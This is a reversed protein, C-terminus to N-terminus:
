DGKKSDEIMKPLLYTKFSLLDNPTVKYLECLYFVDIVQMTLPNNEISEYYDVTVYLKSAVFSNDYGNLEKLFPLNNIFGNNKAKVLNTKMTYSLKEIIGRLKDYLEIESRKIALYKEAANDLSISEISTKGKLIAHGIIYYVIIKKLKYEYKPNKIFSSLVYLLRDKQNRDLFMDIYEDNRFELVEPFSIELWKEIRSM